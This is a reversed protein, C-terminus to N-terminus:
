GDGNTRGYSVPQEREAQKLDKGKNKNSHIYYQTYEPQSAKVREM